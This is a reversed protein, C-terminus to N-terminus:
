PRIEDGTDIIGKEQLADELEIDTPETLIMGGVDVTPTVRKGRNHTTVWELAVADRDINIYEYPVGLRELHERTAATDECWDAGYVKIRDM